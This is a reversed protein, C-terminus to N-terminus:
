EVSDAIPQMSTAAARDDDAVTASKSRQDDIVRTAASEHNTIQTPAARTLAALQATVAASSTKRAAVDGNTAYILLSAAEQSWVLPLRNDGVLAQIGDNNTTLAGLAASRDSDRHSVTADTAMTVLYSHEQLALNVKARSSAADGSPDGPYKDPFDVAIQASLIEALLSTHAYARHLDSYYAGFSGRFVDDIFAKDEQAQQTELPAVSETSLKGVSNLLMSFWPVFTTTLGSMAANAKDDNHTVVGIAYDVLYGNQANWAQAFQISATNGFARAILSTLDASNAALLSTYATYEDSHNVAAESEKAIIMVQEGLLLGLRTRLDAAQSHAPSTPSPSPAPVNQNTCAVLVAVIM